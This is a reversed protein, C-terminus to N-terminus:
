PSTPDSDGRLIHFLPKLEVTTLKLYPRLWHMDGLLKQLDNLTRLQSTRITLKQSHVRIPGLQFDLFMFPYQVQIKDPAIVFGWRQLARVVAQAVVHTSSLEKTAILLDDMYHIIYADPFEQRLPNIIQAVYKQCLTPSNVMGQPLVRWQFRPNPGVHNVIPISFAFRVCDQPHLPISFFCGKIDIVIKSYGRPIAIPSPLGPQLAGMPMMTKNVARLDQLLRWAGSKKKIVFIPTNWPSTSPELHSLRLQEQVLQLAAQVKEQPM